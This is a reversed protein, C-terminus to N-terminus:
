ILIIRIPSEEWCHTSFLMMFLPIQFIVLFELCLRGLLGIIALLNVEEIATLLGGLILYFQVNMGLDIISPNLLAVTTAVVAIFSLIFLLISIIKRM